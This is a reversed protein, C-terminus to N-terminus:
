RAVNGSSWRGRSLRRISRGGGADCAGSPRESGAIQAGRRRFRATGAFPSTQAPDHTLATPAVNRKVPERNCFVSPAQNVGEDKETSSGETENTHGAIALYRTSLRDPPTV